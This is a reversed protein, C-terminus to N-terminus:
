GKATAGAPSASEITDIAVPLIKAGIKKCMIKLAEMYIKITKNKHDTGINMPASKAKLTFKIYL